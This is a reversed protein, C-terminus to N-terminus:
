YIMDSYMVRYKSNIDNEGSYSDKKTKTKFELKADTGDVWPIKINFTRPKGTTGSIYLTAGFTKCFRNIIFLENSYEDGNYLKVFRSFRSESIDTGCQDASVTLSVCFNDNEISKREATINIINNEPNADNVLVVLSMLFMELRDCDTDIYLEKEIDSEVTFKSGLVDSSIFVFEKLYESFDITSIEINNDSYNILELVGNTANLLKCCNGVAIDIYKLEDTNENQILMKKLKDTSVCIGSVANRIAGSQNILVERVGCRSAYSYMVDRGDSSIVYVGNEVEPYNIVNCEYILGCHHVYYKGSSLIKKENPFLMSCNQGCCSFIEDARNFWLIDFDYNTIIVNDSSYAFVSKLNDM